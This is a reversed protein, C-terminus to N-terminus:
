FTQRYNKGISTKKISKVYVIKSPMEIKALQQSLFISLKSLFLKKEKIKEDAVLHLEIEEGWFESKIGKALVEKVGKYSLAIDEIKLLSVQEGGKKIIEKNRGTIFYDQNQKKALDHTNFYKTNFKKITNHNSIYGEFLYKSKVLIENKKSLKISVGKSLKGILNHINKIAIGVSAGIETVGYCNILKINFTKYFEKHISPYLYSGTSIIRVKKNKAELVNYKSYNILAKAMTPSLYTISIKNKKLEKWYRLYSNIGIEEDFYISSNSVLPCLFMNFLGAMYYHPWNHLIVDKKKYNALRSFSKASELLTNLNHRIGKPKGTTGSSFFIIKARKLFNNNTKFNENKKKDFNISLSNIELVPKYIKKLYLIEKSSMKKSIPVITSELLTLGFFAVYFDISREMRLFVIKNKKNKFYIQYQNAFTKIRKYFNKYSLYKLNPLIFFFKDSQFLKEFDKM